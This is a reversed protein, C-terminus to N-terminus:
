APTSELKPARSAARQSSRGSAKWRFKSMLTTRETAASRLQGTQRIYRSSRLALAAAALEFLCAVVLCAEGWTFRRVFDDDERADQYTSTHNTGNTVGDRTAHLQLVQPGKTNFSRPAFWLFCTLELAFACCYAVSFDFWQAHDAIVNGSGCCMLPKDQSHEKGHWYVALGASATAIFSLPVAARMGMPVASLPRALFCWAWPEDARSSLGALHPTTPLLTSIAFVLCFIAAFLGCVTGGKFPGVIHFSSADRGAIFNRRSQESVRSQEQTEQGRHLM